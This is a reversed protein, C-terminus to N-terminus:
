LIAIINNLMHFLISARVDNKSQDYVFYLSTSSILYQLFLLPTKPIHFLTFVLIAISFAVWKNMKPKLLDHYLTQRFILEEMIPAIAITSIIAGQSLKSAEHSFQFANGTIMWTLLINFSLGFFGVLFANLWNQRPKKIITEVSSHYQYDIGYEIDTLAILAIFAIGVGMVSYFMSTFATIEMFLALASMVIMLLWKNTILKDLFKDGVTKLWKFLKEEM